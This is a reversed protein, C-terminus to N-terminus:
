FLCSMFISPDLKKVEALPRFDFSQIIARSGVKYKHVLDVVKKAFLEPTPMQEPIVAEMKIEINVGFDTTESSLWKLVQEFMPIKEGPIPRQDPFHRQPISGCDIERLEKATLLRVPAPRPTRCVRDSVVPDHFVIPVDDASLHLDLEFFDAGSDLAEKFGSM